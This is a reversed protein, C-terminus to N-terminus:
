SRKNIEFIGDTFNLNNIYEETEIFLEQYEKYKEIESLALKTKKNNFLLNSIIPSTKLFHNVGNPLLYKFHLYLKKLVKILLTSRPKTSENHSLLPKNEVKKMNIMEKLRSFTIGDKKILDEFRVIIIRSQCYPLIKNEINEKYLGQDIMFSPEKKVADEINKAIGMKLLWKYASLFREKPDRVIYIIIANDFNKEINIFSRKYIALNQDIELVRLDNKQFYESYKEISFDEKSLLHTDKMTPYNFERSSSFEIHLSTSGTKPAGVVFVPDKTNIM